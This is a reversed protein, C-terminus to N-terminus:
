RKSISLLKLLYLEELENVKAGNYSGMTVEFDSNDKKLVFMQKILYFHNTPM